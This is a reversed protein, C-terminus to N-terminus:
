RGSGPMPCELRAALAATAVPEGLSLQFARLVDNIRRGDPTRLSVALVPCVEAQTDRGTVMLTSLLGAMLGGDRPATEGPAPEVARARVKDLEAQVQGATMQPPNLCNRDWPCTECLMHSDAGAQLAETVQRYNMTIDKGSTVGDTPNGESFLIM